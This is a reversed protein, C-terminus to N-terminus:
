YMERMFISSGSKANPAGWILKANPNKAYSGASCFNSQLHPLNAAPASALGAACSSPSAAAAGLNLGILASGSVAAGAPSKTAVLAGQGSAFTMSGTPLAVGSLAGTTTKAFSAYPIATCSDLTNVTWGLPANWYLASVPARLTDLVSGTANSIELRGHRIKSPAGVASANCAASCAGSASKSM